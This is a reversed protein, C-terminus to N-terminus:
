LEDFVAYLISAIMSCAYSFLINIKLTARFANALCFGLLMFIGFHALTRITPQYENIKQPTIEEEPLVIDLVDKVVGQSTESSEIADEKSFNTIMVMTALVLIWSLAIIFIKKIM